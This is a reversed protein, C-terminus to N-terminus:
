IMQTVELKVTIPFGGGAKGGGEATRHYSRPAIHKEMLLQMQNCCVAHARTQTGFADNLVPPPECCLVKVTPPSLFKLLLLLDFIYAFNKVNDHSIALLHQIFANSM